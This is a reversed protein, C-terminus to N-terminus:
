RTGPPKDMRFNSNGASKLNLSFLRDIINISRSLAQPGPSIILAAIESVGVLKGGVFVRVRVGVGVRVVVGVSVGMGVAVGVAVTVGV